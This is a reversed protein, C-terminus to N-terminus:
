LSHLLSLNKEHKLIGYYTGNSDLITYVHADNEGIIVLPNDENIFFGRQGPKFGGENKPSTNLIIETPKM